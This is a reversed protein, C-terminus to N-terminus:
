TAPDLVDIEGGAATKPMAGAFTRCPLTLSCPNVDDGGSSVWTRTAQASASGPLVVALAGSAVTILALTKLTKLM